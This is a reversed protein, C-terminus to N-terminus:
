GMGGPLSQLVQINNSKPNPKITLHGAIRECKAVKKLRCQRMIEIDIDRVKADAPTALSWLFAAGLFTKITSNCMPKCAEPPEWADGAVARNL